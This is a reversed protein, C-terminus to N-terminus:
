PDFVFDIYSKQSCCTRSYDSIIFYNQDNKDILNEPILQRLYHQYYRSSFSANTELFLLYYSLSIL